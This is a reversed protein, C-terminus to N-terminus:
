SRNKKFGVFILSFFALLIFLMSSPEPVKSSPQKADFYELGQGSYSSLHVEGRQTFSKVVVTGEIPTRNELHALPALLSGNLQKTLNISEAEFFNWIIKDRWQESVMSGVANGLLADSINKGAVNFIITSPVQSGFNMDYQQIKNNGFFSLESFSFVSLGDNLNQAVNFHAPGPQETPVSLSSNPTLAKLFSSFSLVDAELQTFDVVANAATMKDIVSANKIDQYNGGILVGYSSNVQVKSINGAVTLAYDTKSNNVPLHIGYNSIQKGIISGGVLTRGEVESNSDLDGFVILNNKNLFEIVGANVINTFGFFSMFGVLFFRSIVKM